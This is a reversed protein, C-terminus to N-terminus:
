EWYLLGRVLRGWVRQNHLVLQLDQFIGKGTDKRWAVEEQLSCQGVGGLEYVM